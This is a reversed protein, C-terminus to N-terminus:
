DVLQVVRLYFTTILMYYNLSSFVYASANKDASDSDLSPAFSPSDSDSAM